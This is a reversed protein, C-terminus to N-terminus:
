NYIYQFQVGFSRFDRAGLTEVRFWDPDVVFEPFYELGANFLNHGYFQLNWTDDIDGFGLNLNAVVRKDYGSEKNFSSVNHIYGDSFTTKSGLSLKYNNFVPMWYDLDVIFKWDPTRPAETGSRDITAEFDDSGYIDISEQATLCPGSAANEFEFDTCGAGEYKLMQGDMLAGSFGATLRDTVAWRGSLEVGRTRQKGANTTVRLGTLTSSSGAADTVPIRTDIQLDDITITFVTLNYNALGDLLTGKAGVEFTEAYEGEVDFQGPKVIIGTKINAGGAKFATAWKGYLSHNDTPRYRLVIQHDFNSKRYERLYPGSRLKSLPGPDVTGDGNGRFFPGLAVPGRTHWADPIHSTRWQHSLFGDGFDGCAYYGTACDFIDASVDRVVNGVQNTTNTSQIIGDGPIADGAGDPDIDFIYHAGFQSAFSDKKIDTYRGGVDISAKDDFFNYTFSGYASLWETDQWNGYRWVPNFLIGRISITAYKPDGMNGIDLDEKQYYAGAEWEIAGGRASFYRLDQSWMDFVEGRAQGNGAIPSNANDHITSRNFDVYATNSQISGGDEFTYTMGLLYNYNDFDDHAYWNAIASDGGFRADSSFDITAIDIYGTGSRSHRIVPIPSFRQEDGQKLGINEYKGGASCDPLPLLNYVNENFYESAINGPIFVAEEVLDPPGIGGAIASDATVCVAMGDGGKRRQSVDAKFTMEFDEIPKWQLTIRAGSEKIKPFTGGTVIDNIYGDSKDYQGAIRIGLTDTIPGGVGGEVGVRGFSGYEVNLDGEWEPGPKRTTLSFAGATANQGFYIPQPGRLVEIQELDLFAGQIMSTRGYHVGDVFIPAAQELGLNNGTTGLGRIAVDQDMTRVDIEISPSFNALDEMSRLGEQALMDGSYAELSIPVEQLSQVRRQATVTIEELVQQAQLTPIYLFIPSILSSFVFYLCFKTFKGSIKM